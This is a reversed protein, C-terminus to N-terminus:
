ADDDKETNSAPPPWLADVVKQNHLAANVRRAIAAAEAVPMAALMAVDLGRTTESIRSTMVEWAEANDPDLEVRPCPQDDGEARQAAWWDLSVCPAESLQEGVEVPRLLIESYRRAMAASTM